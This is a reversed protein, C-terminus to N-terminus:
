RGICIIQGFVTAAPDVFALTAQNGSLVPAATQTMGAVLIYDIRSLKDATVVGSVDASAATWQMLQQKVPGLSFSRPENANNSAVFAM